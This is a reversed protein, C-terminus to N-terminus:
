RHKRGRDKNKQPAGAGDGDDGRRDRKGDQAGAPSSARRSLTLRLMILKTPKGDGDAHQDVVGDDDQFVDDTMPLRPCIATLRGDPTSSIAEAM